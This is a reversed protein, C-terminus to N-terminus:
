PGGRVNGIRQYERVVDSSRRRPKHLMTPYRQNHLLYAFFFLIGVSRVTVPRSGCCLFTGDSYAGSIVDLDGDGDIDALEVWDAGDTAIDVGTSFDGLGDTNRLWTVWTADDWSSYGVVVDPYGDNNLDGTAISRITKSCHM